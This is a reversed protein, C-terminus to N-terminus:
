WDFIREYWPKRLPQPPRVNNAEFATNPPSSYSQLPNGYRRTETRSIEVCGALPLATLLLGAALLRPGAPRRRKAPRAIAQRTPHPTPRM